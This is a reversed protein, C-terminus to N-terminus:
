KGLVVGFCLSSVTAFMYITGPLVQGSGLAQAAVSQTRSDFTSMLEMQAPM